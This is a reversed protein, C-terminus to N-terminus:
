IMNSNLKVAKLTSKDKFCYMKIKSMETKSAELIIIYKMLSILSCIDKFNTESISVYSVYQFTTRLQNETFIRYNIIIVSIYPFYVPFSFELVNTSYCKMAFALCQCTLPCTIGKLACLYEDDQYPCDNHGDCVNSLHLCVSSKKCQFMNTCRRNNCQHHVAEDHGSPCDWKGDCIYNWPICYFAPCKFMMNCEFLHHNQLHEGNICPHIYGKNNLKYSCIDAIEYFHDKSQCSLKGKKTKIGQSKNMSKQEQNAISKIPKNIHEINVFTSNYLNCTGNWTQFYFVSCGFPKPSTKIFKCKSTYNLTVNCKCNIEDFATNGPCDKQGDCM